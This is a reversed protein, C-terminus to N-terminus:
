AGLVRELYPNAFRREPDLEDRVRLFDDLRPVVGRLAEADLSHEKGWHPRGDFGLM